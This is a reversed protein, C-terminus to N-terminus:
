GSNPAGACAVSRATMGSRTTACCATRSLRREVEAAVQSPEPVHTYWTRWLEGDTVAAVLDDIHETSLQELTTLTGTLTPAAAFDM